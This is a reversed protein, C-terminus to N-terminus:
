KNTSKRQGYQEFFHVDGQEIARVADPYYEFLQERGAPIVFIYTGSGDVLNWATVYSECSCVYAAAALHFADKIGHKKLLLVENGDIQAQTYGQKKLLVTALKVPANPLHHKWQSFSIDGWVKYSDKFKKIMHDGVKGVNGRYDWNFKLNYCVPHKSAGTGEYELEFRVDALGADEATPLTYQWPGSASSIESKSDQFYGETWAQYITSGKPLGAKIEKPLQLRAIEYIKAANKRSYDPKSKLLALKESKLKTIFANMQQKAEPSDMKLDPHECPKPTAKPKAPTPKEPKPARFASCTPLKKGKYIPRTKFKAETTIPISFSLLLCFVTCYISLKKM